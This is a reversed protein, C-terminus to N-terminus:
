SEFLVHLSVDFDRDSVERELTPEIVGCAFSNIGPVVALYQKSDAIFQEVAANSKDKLTFYVNHAHM